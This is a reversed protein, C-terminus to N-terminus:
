SDGAIFDELSLYGKNLALFKDNYRDIVSCAWSILYQILNESIDSDHFAVTQRFGITGDTIDYDFSGDPLGFTAVTTAVAGEMRKEEDMTVPVLSLLRILQRDEDVSMVMDMPLDDGHVTFRVKMKEDERDFHWQRAQLASVIRGYVQQALIHKDTM